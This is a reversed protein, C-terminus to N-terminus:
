GVIMVALFDYSPFVAIGIMSSSLGIVGGSVARLAASALALWCCNSTGAGDPAHFGEPGGAGGVFYFYSGLHNEPAIRM